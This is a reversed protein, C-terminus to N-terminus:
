ITIWTLRKIPECIGVLKLIRSHLLAVEEQKIKYEMRYRSEIYAKQLLKFLHKEQQSDCPFIEELGEALHRSYRYLKDLNHTQVRLGTIVQIIGTYLQEAAQHLHFAALPFQRRITFLEAGSIFETAVQISRSFAQLLTNQTDVPNCDGPIALPINGADYCLHATHYVKSAFPHGGMLWKNFQQVPLVLATTLSDENCRNEIIDQLIDNTRRENEGPLILLDFAGPKKFEVPWPVFINESFYRHSCASLLFIKEPSVLQKINTLLKTFVPTQYFTFDHKM